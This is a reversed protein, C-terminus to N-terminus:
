KAGPPRHDEFPDDTQHHSGPPHCLRLCLSGERLRPWPERRWRPGAGHAGSGPEESGGRLLLGRRLLRLHDERGRGAPRRGAHDERHARRHPLERRLRRLVRVRIGQLWRGPQRRHPVRLWPRGGDACLHWQVENCARVCRSCVICASPDFSFYPNSEDKCAELHTEGGKGYRTTTTLGLKRAVQRLESREGAADTEPHDSMYLEVVGSRLKTLRDSETKVKMGPAVLTTCSAPFGRQGEIEVMCVRCSGFAKLTDTACLKPIATGAAAAARMVSTGAPVTVEAGDIFLTVPAGDVPPTGHDHYDLSYM